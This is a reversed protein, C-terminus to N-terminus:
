FFFGSTYYWLTSCWTFTVRPICSKRKAVVYWFCCQVVKYLEPLRVKLHNGKLYCGFSFQWHCNVSILEFEVMGSISHMFHKHLQHNCYAWIGFSITFSRYICLFYLMAKMFSWLFCIQFFILAVIKKDGSTSACHLFYSCDSAQEISLRIRYVMLFTHLIKKLM